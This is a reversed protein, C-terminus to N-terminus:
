ACCYSKIIGASEKEMENFESIFEDCREKAKPSNKVFGARKGLFEFNDHYDWCLDWSCGEVHPLAARLLHM